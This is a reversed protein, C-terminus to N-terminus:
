ATSTHDLIIRWGVKSKKFILSFKGHPQDNARKLSWSGLVVASDKSLLNMELDSFTLQGMKEPTDFGKQYRELVTKWGRVVTDGSIFTTNETRDYGDMYGEVDGKNWADRQKDIVARIDALAKEKSKYQPTNVQAATTCALLCVFVFSVLPRFKM